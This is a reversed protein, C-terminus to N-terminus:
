LPPLLPLSQTISGAGMRRASGRAARLSGLAKRWLEPFKALMFKKDKSSGKLIFYDGKKEGGVVFCDSM